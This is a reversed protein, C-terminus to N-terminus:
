LAAKVSAVVDDSVWDEWLTSTSLFHAATDAGTGNNEDGWALLPNLVSGPITRAAFYDTVASGANKALKKSIVTNVRSHVWSSPQPDSCKDPGLAICGHWNDDGGWEVGFPVQQLNYKGVLSTPNWYYGLWNDGQESAKAISGDLGAASGPDILKWGKAEMDFARFLSGNSLQCGWGAPCGVFAGKSPDEKDPFLDPREIVDLVTKLEPHADLTHPLLWWGEGLGSIPGSNANILRGTDVAEDLLEAVANAWLEPAVDPVGKENMSTFTPMTSGAVLEVECGLATLIAKDVHAIMSASAWNMDAVQIKGCHDAQVATSLMALGAAAMATKKIIQIKM